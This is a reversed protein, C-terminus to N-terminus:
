KQFRKTLVKNFTFFSNLQNMDLAQPVCKALANQGIQSFCAQYSSIRHLVIMAISVKM